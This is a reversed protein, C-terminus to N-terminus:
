KKGTEKKNEEKTESPVVVADITETKPQKGKLYDPLEMGAMKFLDEFPPIAGLMGALFNATSSKGNANNSSGNDWVTVKDIKLNKIAEVQYKVLEPLKDAIMLMVADRSNNNAAKVLKAFGESQKTLIEYIGRAQADM